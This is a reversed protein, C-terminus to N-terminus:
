QTIVEAEDKGVIITHEFHASPAGDATKYTYGDDALEIEEGGLMLMPELALVQGEKLKEGKGQKGFNRIFPEEHVGTGVGHGGLDRPFSFGYKHAVMEAAHGLDGLTAGAHAAEIQAYLAERTARILLEKEKSITGVGVSVSADTFAGKHNVGCDLAVIDGEQLIRSNENPIGHVIEDNVSVCLAAPYPRAADWPTYGLFSASDGFSEIVERAKDELAQTSVGPRVLAAVERLVEALHKGSERLLEHEKQTKIIM